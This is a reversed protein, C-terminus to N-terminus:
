DQRWPQVCPEGQLTGRLVWCNPPSVPHPVLRHLWMTAEGGTLLHCCGREGPAAPDLSGSASLTCSLLRRSAHAAGMSLALRTGGPLASPDAQGQSPFHERQFAAGTGARLKWLIM